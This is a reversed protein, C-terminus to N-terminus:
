VEQRSYLVAGMDAYGEKVCKKVHIGPSIKLSLKSYASVYEAFHKFTVRM